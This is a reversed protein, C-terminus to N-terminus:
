LPLLAVIDKGGNNVGNNDDYGGNRNRTGVGDRSGITDKHM